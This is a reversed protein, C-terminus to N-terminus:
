YPFYSICAPAIQVNGRGMKQVVQEKSAIFCKGLVGEKQCVNPFAAAGRPQLAKSVGDKFSYVVQLEKQIKFM